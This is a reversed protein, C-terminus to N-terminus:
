HNPPAAPKQELWSAIRSLLAQGSWETGDAFIVRLTSADPILGAYGELTVRDLSDRTRVVLSDDVRVLVVDEPSIGTAVRVMVAGSTWWDQVAVSGCGRALAYEKSAPEGDQEDLEAEAGIRFQGSRELEDLLAEAEPAFPLDLLEATNGPEKM